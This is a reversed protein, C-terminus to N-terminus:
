ETVPAGTVEGKAEVHEGGEEEHKCEGGACGGQQQAGPQQQQAQMRMAMLKQQQEQYLESMMARLKDPTVLKAEILVASIADIQVTMENIKEFTDKAFGNFSALEKQIREQNGVIMGLVNVLGGMVKNNGEQAAAIRELVSLMREESM